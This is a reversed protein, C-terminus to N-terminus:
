SPNLFEKYRRALEGGATPFHEKWYDILAEFYDASGNSFDIALPHDLLQQITSDWDLLPYRVFNLDNSVTHHNQYTNYLFHGIVVGEVSSAIGIEPVADRLKTESKVKIRYRFFIDIQPDEKYQELITYEELTPLLWPSNAFKKLVEAPDLANFFLFYILFGIFPIPLGMQTFPNKGKFPLKFSQQNELVVPNSKSKQRTTELQEKM